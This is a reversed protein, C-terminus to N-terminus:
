ESAAPRPTAILMWHESAAWAKEFENQNLRHLKRRTPDNLLVAEGDVGAVVAFHMGKARGPKLGVIVPRGKAIHQEIDNWRGRLTFALFGNEELYRRMDALLIGKREPAYLRQYVLEPAPAAMTSGVPRGAWYHMVMAVSAAGCGNKQQQFFPVSLPGAASTVGCAIAILGFFRVASM